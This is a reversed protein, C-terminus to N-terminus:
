TIYTIPDNYFQIFDNPFLQYKFSNYVAIRFM